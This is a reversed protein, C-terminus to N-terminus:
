SFNITGLRHDSELNMIAEDLDIRELTKSDIVKQVIRLM